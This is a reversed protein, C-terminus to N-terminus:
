PRRMADLGKQNILERYTIMKCGKGELAGRFEPALLAKLEAQRHRSMQALGIVNQDLLADMEPTELGIHFVFLQPAGCKLGAVLAVLDGTKKEPAVEYYGAVDQEGYYRSIALGFERALREVLERLELTSVAASMHYDVYDIRLGSQLARRIQARLELEVEEVKPGHQFLLTRSPFFYGCSDVLSPVTGAGAIPGWRYNKWEANLTLHVGVSVEPHRKLIEVAEQYWPCAFMVSASFPIGSEIVQQAATNVAHCMGIDDCRIMVPIEQGFLPIYAFAFLVVFFAVQRM